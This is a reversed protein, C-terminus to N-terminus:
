PGEALLDPLTVFGYGRSRLDEIMGPLADADLTSGDDPHAGVHMLVVQGPRLTSLVRDRVVATTIGESTGKWGLTDATWRIPVYGADNVVEIDLSTRDGFPFRFLPATPHGTLASISGDAARLEARIQEDTSDPFSPHTDSHNGVPHGARAIARVSEPYSRAFSGTVFFTAVVDERDLTALIDAVATDSAGGDFTLAVVRRETAFAEVDVGRWARVLATVDPATPTATPRPAPPTASTPAPTQTPGTTPTPTPPEATTPQPTTTPGATTPEATPVVDRTSPASADTSTSMPEEVGGESTTTTTTTGPAAGPEDDGGCGALVLTGALVTALVVGARRQERRM